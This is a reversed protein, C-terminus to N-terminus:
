LHVCKSQSGKSSEWGSRIKRIRRDLCPFLLVAKCLLVTVPLLLSLMFTPPTFWIYQNVDIWKNWAFVLAHLTSILLAIYGLKSQIFQFERWSLSTAVSPISTVALISLIALALIGLSVYIEMRWVDHEIWANDKQQKVQQYAWNLIKYRYSRRMPYSFSYLAHVAGFFFSLLGFQKRRHMWTNLWPAFRQYKTGRYLQLIAAFIGPLYTLSLSTISIVPLVRNVVLIPIRYFENKNNVLFPHLVERIFTYIFVILALLSMVTVPLHWEPFLSLKRKNGRDWGFLDIQSLQEKNQPEQNESENVNLTNSFDLKQCQLQLCVEEKRPTQLEHLHGEAM